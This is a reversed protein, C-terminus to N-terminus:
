KDNKAKKKDTLTEGVRQQYQLKTSLDDRQTELAEARTIATALEKKAEDAQEKAAKKVSEVAFEGGTALM